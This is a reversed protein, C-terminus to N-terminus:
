GRADALEKLGLALAHKAEPYPGLASDIVAKVEAWAPSALIDLAEAGSVPQALHSLLKVNARLEGRVRAFGSIAQLATRLDGSRQATTLIQAARNELAEMRELGERVRSLLDEVDLAERSPAPHNAIHRRLSSEEVGWTRATARVPTSVVAQEIARREPHTCITCPRGM